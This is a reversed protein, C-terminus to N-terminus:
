NLQCRTKSSKRALGHDRGRNINWALLDFGGPVNPANLPDKNPNPNFLDRAKEAFFGSAIGAPAQMM